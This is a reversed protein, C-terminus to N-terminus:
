VHTALYSNQPDGADSLRMTSGVLPQEGFRGNVAIPKFARRSDLSDFYDSHYAPNNHTHYNIIQSGRMSPHDISGTDSSNAAEKSSLPPAGVHDTHIAPAPLTSNLAYSRMYTNQPLESGPSPKRPRSNVTSRSRDRPKNFRCFCFVLAAILLASLFSAIVILTFETVTLVIADGSTGLPCTISTTDNTVNPAVTWTAFAFGAANSAMCVYSGADEESVNFVVVAGDRRLTVDESSSEVTVNEGRATTVTIEPVPFGEATCQLSLMGGSGPLIDDGYFQVSPLTCLLRELVVDDLVRGRLNEPAACVIQNKITSATNLRLWLSAAQMSCDCEWPNNTMELNPIDGLVEFGEIPLTKLSNFRLRLTNLQLLQKLVNYPMETITNNSLNIEEVAALSSFAYQGVSTINNAALNLTQLSTMGNLSFDGLAVIENNQLELNQLGSLGSFGNTDITELDNEYLTLITLSTLGPFANETIRLVQNGNLYLEQLASLERLAAPITRLLNNELRLETLSTLGVFANSTITSILNDQLYLKTLSRLDDFLFDGLTTIANEYLYLEEVETIGAFSGQQLSGIQNRYLHLQTLKVMGRFMNGTVATLNNETLYLNTLNELKLFTNPLITDIPNNTLTLWELVGLNLFSTPSLTQIDNNELFLRVTDSPIGTPVDTLQNETCFVYTNTCQCPTPCTQANCFPLSTMLVFVTLISLCIRRVTAMNASPSDSGISTIDVFRARAGSRRMEPGGKHRAFM